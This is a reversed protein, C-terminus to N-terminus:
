SSQRRAHRRYQKRHSLGQQNRVLPDVRGDLTVVPVIPEGSADHELLDAGGACSVARGEVHLHQHLQRVGLSQQM